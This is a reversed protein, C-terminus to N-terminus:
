NRPDTYVRIEALFRLGHKEISEMRVKPENRVDSLLYLDKMRVPMFACMMRLEEDSFVGDPLTRQWYAIKNRLGSLKDFLINMRDGRPFPRIVGDSGTKVSDTFRISIPFLKRIKIM